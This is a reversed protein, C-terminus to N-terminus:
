LQSEPTWTSVQVALTHFMTSVHLEQVANCSAEGWNFVGVVDKWLLQSHLMVEYRSAVLDASDSRHWMTMHWQM